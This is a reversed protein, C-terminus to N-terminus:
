GIGYRKLKEYLTRVGIGLADAARKRNGDVEALARVIAAQELAELTQPETASPQAPSALPDLVIQEVRITPGDSLIAARELTNKLERVNGSWPAAVLKEVAAPDLSLQARGISRGVSRLLDEALAPIDARRERLQPLRVPFVSLRHYLDQRFKGETVLAGLDRNTAAIWRVDAHLTRSGGLREYSREQLVRLLKAQLEPKLEGVEDLFFTGGAALEIRGRRAAHAGTFAGREHGFLESELLQESLVACNVAMFPGAARASHRHVYHAAVEKGTGSEGVLLLTSDTRAVRELADIVQQMAPADSRLDPYASANRESGEKLSVLARRELARAVLLRLQSPAAIPKQLFDFAGLKMAEVAVDISGHATLLIVELDPQLEKGQRLLTLGDMRPMKLDTVLLDFASATLEDLARKGDEALVVEHGAGQLTEGIFERVGEEDDAVLIRSM